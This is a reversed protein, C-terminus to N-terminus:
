FLYIYNYMIKRKKGRPHNAASSNTIFVSNQPLIHEVAEPLSMTM